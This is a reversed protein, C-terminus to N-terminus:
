LDLVSSLASQNYLDLKLYLDDSISDFFYATYIGSYKLLTILTGLAGAQPFYLKIFTKRLASLVHKM